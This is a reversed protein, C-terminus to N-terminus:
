RADQLYGPPASIPIVDPHVDWRDPQLAPKGHEGNAKARKPLAQVCSVIHSLRGHWLRPRCPACGHFTSRRRREVKGLPVKDRPKGTGSCIVDPRM